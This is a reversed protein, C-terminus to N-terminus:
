STKSENSDEPSYGLFHSRFRSSGLLLACGMAIYFPSLYPKPISSQRLLFGLSIMLAIMVYGRPALFSTLPSREPLGHIRLVNRDAIKRLGSFYSLVGLGIGAAGLVLPMFGEVGPLWGLGRVLLFVGIIGWLSGALVFLWKKQVIPIFNLPMAIASGVVM